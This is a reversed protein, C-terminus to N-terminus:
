LFSKKLGKLANLITDQDIVFQNTDPKIKKKKSTKVKKLKSLGSMLDVASPKKIAGDMLKKQEVAEKSIGMKLMSTYKDLHRPVPPPIPVPPLIPLVPDDVFAYKDLNIEEKIRLQLINWTFGINHENEWLNVLQLIFTGFTNKKITEKPLQERASSFVRVNECTTKLIPPYGVSHKLTLITKNNNNIESLCNHIINVDDYFKKANKSYKINHFSIDLNKQDNYRDFPIYMLPTQIFIPKKKYNVFRILSKGVPHRVSLSLRTTDIDLTKHSTIM